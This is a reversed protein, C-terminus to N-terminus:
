KMAEKGSGSEGTFSVLSQSSEKTTIQEKNNLKPAGWDAVYVGGGFAGGFSDGKGIASVLGNKTSSCGATSISAAHWTSRLKNASIWV